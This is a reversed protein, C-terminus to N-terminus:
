KGSRKSGHRMKTFKKFLSKKTKKQPGMPQALFFVYHVLLVDFFNQLLSFIFQCFRFADLVVVLLLEQSILQVVRVKYGFLLRAKDEERCFLMECVNREVVVFSESMFKVLTPTLFDLFSFVVVSLFLFSSPSASYTYLFFLFM